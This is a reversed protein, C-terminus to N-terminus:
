WYDKKHRIRRNLLSFVVRWVRFYKVNKMHYCFHQWLTLCWDHKKNRSCFISKMPRVFFFCWFLCKEHLSKIMVMSRYSISTNGDNTGKLSNETWSFKLSVWTVWLLISQMQYNECWRFIQSAITSCLWPAVKSQLKTDRSVNAQSM